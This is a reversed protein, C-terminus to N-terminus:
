YIEANKALLNLRGKPDSRDTAGGKRENVGSTIIVVGANKLADYDGDVIEVKAGLPTGYRLDTAIAEATQRTRNVLVVERASGRTVAAFACVAGVNGAGIIGLKM